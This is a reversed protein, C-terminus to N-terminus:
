PMVDSAPREAYPLHGVRKRAARARELRGGVTHHVAMGAADASAAASASCAASGSAAAASSSASAAAVSISAAAATGAQQRRQKVQIVRQCAIDTRGAARVKLDDPPVLTGRHRRRRWRSLVGVLIPVLQQGQRRQRRPLMSKCTLKHGVIAQHTSPRGRHAHFRAVAATASPTPTTAASLALVLSAVIAKPTSHHGQGTQLCAAPETSAGPVDVLM